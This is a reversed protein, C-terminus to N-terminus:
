IEYWSGCQCRIKNILKSSSYLRTETKCKFCTIIKIKYKDVLYEIKVSYDNNNNNDNVM